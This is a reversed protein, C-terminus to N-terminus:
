KWSLGSISNKALVDQLTLGAGTWEHSLADKQAQLYQIIEHKVAIDTTAAYVRIAPEVGASGARYLIEADFASLSGGIYRDANYQAVRGAPGSLCLLCMLVAGTVASLRVISFSKFQRVIVGIFVVSLFAMFLCPLLRRVSLGYAQIYLGMKSMATAILILTLASLGISLIRLLGAKQQRRVCLLNAAALVILNVVAIGCLEFFGSRAYESYVQWGEPIRGSFASFFYPLQSGVYVAYLVSVLGLLIYSTLAPMVRMASLTKGAKEASITGSHRRRAAGAVLGFIYASVPISLLLYMVTELIEDKWTILRPLLNQTLQAFGGSDARLLLPLVILCVIITLALGALVAIFQKGTSKGKGKLPSLSQYQTFFNRFPIIFVGNIGDLFLWNGTKGGILVGSSSLVFYIASCFFFLTRWPELGGSSWLAYSAGMLLVIVLWFWGTKSVAAKRHRLYFLMFGCYGATFLTVIWGRWSFMVWRTFLYGLVFMVLAFVADTKDPIFTAKRGAEASVDEGGSEPSFAKDFLQKGQEPDLYGASQDNM